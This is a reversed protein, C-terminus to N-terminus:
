ASCQHAGLRVGAGVDMVVPILIRLDRVDGVGKELVWLPEAVCLM